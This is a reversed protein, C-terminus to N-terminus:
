SPVGSSDESATRLAPFHRAVVDDVSKRGASPGEIFRVVALLEELGGAYSSATRVINMVDSRADSRRSAAARIELRVQALLDDRGEPRALIGCALLAETLAALQQFTLEWPERPPLRGGRQVTSAGLAITNGEWDRSWEWIPTQSSQGSARLAAFEAQVREALERMDPPWSTGGYRGLQALLERSFLGRREEGLNKAVQGPQAAFFLFQEHPLPEGRPLEESPFSFAWSQYNACADVIVIQSPFGPFYGSALSRTLTELSVNRKDSTTADAMFLRHQQEHIVGHGAWFVFLLDGAQDHLTNFAGRVAASTAPVAHMEAHEVLEVHEDVPSVLTQIREAPVGRSRLWGHVDLVDRVPGPLNWEPGAGYKEVGVLVASTRDPSARRGSM